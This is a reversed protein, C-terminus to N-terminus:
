DFLYQEDFQKNHLNLLKVYEEEFSYKKHHIEQTRIYDRMREINSYSVSFSGYGDQWAFHNTETFEQKLWSSSASKTNKVLTTFHDLNSVEVLLHVHNAIGGIELLCGNTKRIVGGMYAYLGEQMKELILNKREKTSWVLHFFHVRHSSAV